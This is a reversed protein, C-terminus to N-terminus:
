IMGQLFHTLLECHGSLANSLDLGLRQTLEPMRAAGSPELGKHFALWLYKFNETSIQIVYDSFRHSAGHFVSEVLISKNAQLAIGYPSGRLRLARWSFTRCEFKSIRIKM